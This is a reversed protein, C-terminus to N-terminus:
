ERYNGLAASLRERAMQRLAPPSIVEVEPGYKLIDMILERADSYPVHLEYGGDALVIGRQQPHWQEDAVWRSADPSFRLHATQKPAGAFIGYGGTFHADLREAPIERAPDDLTAVPQLRDLAFSRLANRLHCWADLYWNSRYYVLRQPSVIRETTRDRERGHYLIRMQHRQLVAGAVQRFRTMETPRSAMQLIRIRDAIEPNGCRRHTLLSYLRDRLPAIYPTLLGPQLSDLL